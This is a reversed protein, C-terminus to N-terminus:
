KKVKGIFGMGIGLIIWYLITCGLMSDNCLGLIMFSTISVFFATFQKKRFFLVCFIIFIGIYAVVSLLGSQIAIQFYINHPKTILVNEYGHNIRGLFDNNPFYIAFTDQGKGLFLCEKLLPITRSWIYGRGNLINEHGDLLSSKSITNSDYKEANGMANVCVYGEDYIYTFLVSHEDVTMKICDYRGYQIQEFYVDEFGKTKIQLLGQEDPLLDYINRNEDMVLIDEFDSDMELIIDKGDYKMYVGDEKTSIATLKTAPSTDKSLIVTVGVFAVCLMVVSFIISGVCFAKNKRGFVLLISLILSFVAVLIGAFAHAGILSILCLILSATHLIREWVSKCRYFSWVLVPLVLNVYIGVYDPNALTCYATGKSAEFSLPIDPTSAMYINRLFDMELVDIGFTQLAGILGIPFTSVAFINWFFSSNILEDSILFAYVCCAAYSLIVWVSEFQELIGHFGFYSYESAITSIFVMLVYIGLPIFLKFQRFDVKKFIIRFIIGVANLLGLSLIVNRKGAFFLDFLQPNSVYWSFENLHNEYLTGWIVLPVFLMLIIPFQWIKKNDTM